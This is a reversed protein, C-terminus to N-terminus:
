TKVIRNDYLLYKLDSKNVAHVNAIMRARAAQAYGLNLTLNYLSKWSNIYLDDPATHKCPNIM